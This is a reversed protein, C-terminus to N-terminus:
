RTKRKSNFAPENGDGCGGGRLLSIGISAKLEPVRAPAPENRHSEHPKATAKSTRSATGHQASHPPTLNRRGESAPAGVVEHLYAESAPDGELPTNEGGEEYNLVFSLALRAGGPWRPDPPEAGYGVLDRASSITM